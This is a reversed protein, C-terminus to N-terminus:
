DMSYDPIIQRPRAPPIPAFQQDLLDWIAQAEPTRTVPARPQGFNWGRDGLYNRLGRDWQSLWTQTINYIGQIWEGPEGFMEEATEAATLGAPVTGFPGGGMDLGPEQTGGPLFLANPSLKVTNDVPTNRAASNVTSAITRSRAQSIIDATEADTRRIQASTLDNQLGTSEEGFQTLADGVLDGSTEPRVNTATGSYAGSAGLAALPSIGAAQADAVMRQMQNDEREYSENMFRRNQIMSMGAGILSGGGGGLFKLFKGM